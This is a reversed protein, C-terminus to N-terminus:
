DYDEDEDEDDEEGEGEEEDGEDSEEDRDARDEDYYAGDDDEEDDDDDDEEEFKGAALPYNGLPDASAFFSSTKFLNFGPLCYIALLCSLLILPIFKIQPKTTM